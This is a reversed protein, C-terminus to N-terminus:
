EFNINLGSMNAFQKLLRVAEVFSQESGDLYLATDDAFQSLMIDKEHMKIGKINPNQRLMISLVEACILYLYPSLPDGQRVGRAVCFWPSYLGNSIVCSKIDSYFTQIWQRIDNGFNFFELAKIIFSWSISDFAKEFDILVILGPINEKATYLLLDYMLRINEGIYRGKM